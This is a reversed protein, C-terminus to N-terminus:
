ASFWLAKYFIFLMLGVKLFLGDGNAGM